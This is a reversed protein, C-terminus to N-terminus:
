LSFEAISLPIFGTDPNPILGHWSALINFASMLFAFRAKLAAWVRHSMKKAHCVGTLMALVTEIVMRVNWRKPPCIKLNAPDGQPRHFGHDSLIILQEEFQQILPAFAADYVNAPACDWAVVLGFQNTIYCLKVGVIWRRNSTGKKGIQQHSRGERAPHILEVGYTDAVGLVTPDALFRSTWDQHAVLLRFLRTRDPLKPFLAGYDRQLWRYFPRPGVGKLAFLVGLTVIESPYLKAQQHKAIGSMADDIRCFLEIIFDDTPM